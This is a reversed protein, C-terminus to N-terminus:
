VTASKASPAPPTYTCRFNGKTSPPCPFHPISSQSKPKHTHTRTKFNFATHTTGQLSPPLSTLLSYFCAVNLLARRMNLFSLFFVAFFLCRKSLQCNSCCCVRERESENMHNRKTEERAGRVCKTKQTNGMRKDIYIHMNENM